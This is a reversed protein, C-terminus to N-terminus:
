RGAPPAGAAHLRALTQPGRSVAQDWTIRLVREGYGELLAQREADDERALRHDHWAAGDAEVVLREEPWRFDPIVQRGGIRLPVNVNPSAFGGSLILELVVDELESRTPAHGAALIERLNRVGRRPGLRELMETLERVRVRRLSQARRLARRLTRYDVVSALDVLTRAPSTLRIGSRRGVDGRDLGKTRHVRIRPHARTGTGVVTVEPLRGDWDVFEWLAAASFHSLVAGPGCAKVAALLHGELQLRTHGVAFVGRHVRHLRGNQVRVSVADRALGCAQLEGLSLM